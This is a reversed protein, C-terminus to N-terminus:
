YGKWKNVSNNKSPLLLGEIFKVYEKDDKFTSYDGFFIKRFVRRLINDISVSLEALKEESYKNKEKKRIDIGHFFSSRIGYGNSLCDQIEIREDLDNTLYYAARLSIKFNIESREGNAFLCEMVSMYLSIRFPLDAQGRATYLTVFAREIRDYEMYNHKHFTINPANFEAADTLEIILENFLNPCIMPFKLFMYRAERLDEATFVVDELQGRANFNVENNWHVGSLQLFTNLHCVAQMGTISNDKILWFTNIFSNLYKFTRINVDYM